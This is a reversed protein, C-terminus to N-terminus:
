GRFDGRKIASIIDAICSVVIGLPFGLQFWLIGTLSSLNIFAPAFVCWLIVIPIQLYVYNNWGKHAILQWVFTAVLSFSFGLCAVVLEVKLEQYKTGILYLILDPAFISIVVLLIAPILAILSWLFLKNGINNKCKAFSPVAFAMLISSVPLFLQNIRGLAGLSAVATSDVYISLIFLVLPAQFCYFVELPFQRRTVSYIVEKDRKAQESFYETYGIGFASNKWKTISNVRLLIPLVCLFVATYINVLSYYYALCLLILRIISNKTDLISIKGQYGDYMLISDVIRTKLDGFWNATLLMVLYIIEVFGCNNKNLMWISYISIIPFLYISIRKRIIFAQNLANRVRARDPWCQGVIANLGLHVGGKTLIQIAGSITLFITLKAYDEINLWRTLLLGICASILQGIIAASFFSLFLRM